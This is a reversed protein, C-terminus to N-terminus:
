SLDSTPVGVGFSRGPEPVTLRPIELDEAAAVARKTGRLNSMMCFSGPTLGIFTVLGDSCPDTAPAMTGATPNAGVAQAHGLKDDYGSVVTVQHGRRRLEELVDPSFHDELLVAEQTEGWTRGYLWRPAEVATKVDMQYNLM